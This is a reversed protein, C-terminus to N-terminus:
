RAAAACGRPTLPRMCRLSATQLAPHQPPLASVGAAHCAAATSAAATSTRSTPTRLATTAPLALRAFEAWASTARATRTPNARRRSSPPLSGLLRPSFYLSACCPPHLLSLTGQRARVKPLQNRWRCPSWPPAQEVRRCPLGQGLGPWCPRGQLTYSAGPVCDTHCGPRLLCPRPLVSVTSVPRWATRRATPARQYSAWAAQPAGPWPHAGTGTLPRAPLPHCSDHDPLTCAGRSQFVAAAPDGEGPGGEGAGLAPHASLMIASMLALKVGIQTYPITPTNNFAQDPAYRPLLIPGGARDRQLATSDTSVPDGAPSGM